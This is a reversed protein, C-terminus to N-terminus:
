TVVSIKKKKKEALASISVCDTNIYEPILWNTFDNKNKSNTDQKEVSLTMGIKSPIMCLPDPFPSTLSNDHAQLTLKSNVNCIRMCGHKRKLIPPSERNQKKSIDDLVKNESSRM